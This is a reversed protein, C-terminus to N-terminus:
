GHGMANLAAINAVVVGAFVAAATAHGAAAVAAAGAGFFVAELLLRRPGSLHHPARPSGFVAWVTAAAVPAAIAVAIRVLTGDVASYGWYGLAALAALELLFQVTLSVGLGVPGAHMQDAM